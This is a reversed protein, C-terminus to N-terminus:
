PPLITYRRWRHHFYLSLLRLFWRQIMETYVDRNQMINVGTVWSDYRWIFPFLGGNYNGHCVANPAAEFCLYVFFLLRVPEPL